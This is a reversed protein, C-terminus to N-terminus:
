ADFTFNANGLRLTAGRELGAESVRAGALWTGNHSGLDRVVYAGNRAEIVAHYRSISADDLVIDNDLARGVRTASGAKLLLRRGDAGTLSAGDAPVAVNPPRVPRPAGAAAEAGSYFTLEYGGIRIRDGDCLASTEIRGGNVFTGAEVALNRISFNDGRHEIVAHRPNVAADGFLGVPNEEARGIGVTAGDLRFQRGRLRGAEVVLWGRKTLEQVLGIFLGIALGIFSIAVLRPLLGSESIFGILDFVLGGAFGGAFGGLGGKLVNQLSRSALGVGVGITLGMLAWGLTRALVLIFGPGTQDPAAGGARLLVNFLENAYYNGPMATVACVVFGLIFRRRTAATLEFRQDAVAMLMGGIAAAMLAM